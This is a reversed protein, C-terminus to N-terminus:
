YTCVGPINDMEDSPNLQDIKAKLMEIEKAQREVELNLEQVSKTILATMQMYKVGQLSGDEDYTALLPSVKEVDEAIFGLDREGGKDAVWNFEVPRLRMLDSLGLNLGVVNDKYKSLSTCDGIWTAGSADMCVTTAGVGSARGNALLQVGSTTGDSGVLVINQNTGAVDANFLIWGDTSGATADTQKFDIYALTQSTSASDDMLARLRLIDNTAGTQDPGVLNLPYFLTASDVYTATVGGTTSITLATNGNDEQMTTAGGQAIMIRQIGNKDRIVTDSGAFFDIRDIGASDFIRNAYVDNWTYAPSGLDYTLDTQPLLNRTLMTGTSANIRMYQTGNEIIKFDDEPTKALTWQGAGSGTLATGGLHVVAWNYTGNNIRIGSSYDDAAGGSPVVRTKGWVDLKV